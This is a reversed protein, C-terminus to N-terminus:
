CCHLTRIGNDNKLFCGTSDLQKEFKQKEFLPLKM